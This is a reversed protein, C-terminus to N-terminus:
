GLHYDAAGAENGSDHSIQLRGHGFGKALKEVHRPDADHRLHDREGVQCHPEPNPNRKDDEPDPGLIGRVRVFWVKALDKAIKQLSSPEGRFHFRRSTSRM